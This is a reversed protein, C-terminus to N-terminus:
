VPRNLFIPIKKKKFLKKFRLFKKITKKEKKKPM